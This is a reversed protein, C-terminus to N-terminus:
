LVEIKWEGQNVIGGPRWTFVRRRDKDFPEYEAAYMYENFYTNLIYYNGSVSELRWNFQDSVVDGPRWTFVRRRDKDFPAYEAAYLYEKHFENFINYLNNVGSVPILRWIGQDVPEGPRWTFVQRRDKDFPEYSSAYLYEKHYTNFINCRTGAQKGFRNLCQLIILDITTQEPFDMPIICAWNNQDLPLYKFYTLVKPNISDAISKANPIPANPDIWYGSAFSIFFKGSIPQSKAQNLLAEVKNWKWDIDPIWGGGTIYKGPVEYDDQIDFLNSNWDFGLPRGSSLQFRRILVIKGRVDKLAPIQEGIYWRNSDNQNIYWRVTDEYSRTNNSPTYEDKLSMLIFENPHENLFSFCYDIVDGFMMKQFYRGHHIALRDDIHRGRIDLFQIGAVLQEELTLTQCVAGIGHLACSDHTGPLSIYNIKASDPLLSIWSDRYFSTM